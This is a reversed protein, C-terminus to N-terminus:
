EENKKFMPDVRKHDKLTTRELNTQTEQFSLLSIMAEEIYTQAPLSM